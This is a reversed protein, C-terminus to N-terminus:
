QNYGKTKHTGVPCGGLGEPVFITVRAKAGQDKEGPIELILQGPNLAQLATRVNVGPIPSVGGIVDTVGAFLNKGIAGYIYPAYQALAAGTKVGFQQPIVAATALQVTQGPIGGEKGALKANGSLGRGM